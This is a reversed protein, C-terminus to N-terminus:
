DIKEIIDADLAQDITLVLTYAHEIIGLKVLAEVCPRGDYETFDADECVAGLTGIHLPLMPQIRYGDVEKTRQRKTMQMRRGYDHPSPKALSDLCNLCKRCFSFAILYRHDSADM